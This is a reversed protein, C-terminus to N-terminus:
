HPSNHNQSSLQTYFIYFSPSRSAVDFFSSCPFAPTTASRRLHPERLLGRMKSARGFCCFPTRPLRASRIGPHPGGISYILSYKPLRMKQCVSSLAERHGSRPGRPPTRSIGLSCICLPPAIYLPESAM